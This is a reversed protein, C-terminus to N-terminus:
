KTPCVHRDSEPKERQTKNTDNQNTSASRIIPLGSDEAAPSKRKQFISRKLSQSAIKPTIESRSQPSIICFALALKFNKISSKAKIRNRRSIPQVNNTQKINQANAQLDHAHPYKPLSHTINSIRNTVNSIHAM